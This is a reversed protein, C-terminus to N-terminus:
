EFSLYDEMVWGRLGDLEIDWWGDRFGHVIVETGTKWAAIRASSKDRANRVNVETSGNSQGKCILQATGIPMEQPSCFQLSNTLVFGVRGGDNVKTYRGGIRLVSVITGAKSKKLQKGKESATARLPVSGEKPAYIVAVAKEQPVERSFTLDATFVEMEEGDLLIRSRYSGLKILEVAECVLGKATLGVEPVPTVNAEAAQVARVDFEVKGGSIKTEYEPDKEHVSFLLGDEGRVESQCPMITAQTWGHYKVGDVMFDISKWTDFGIETVQVYTGAPIVGISAGLATSSGEYLTAIATTKNRCSLEWEQQTEAMGSAPLLCAVVWACVLCRLGKM